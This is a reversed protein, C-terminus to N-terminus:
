DQGEFASLSGSGWSSVILICRCLLLQSAKRCLLLLMFSRSFSLLICLSEGFGFCQPLFVSFFCSYFLVFCSSFENENNNPLRQQNWDWPARAMHLSRARVCAKGKKGNEYILLELSYLSLFVFAGRSWRVSSSASGGHFLTHLEQELRRAFSVVQVRGNGQHWDLFFFFYLFCSYFFRSLRQRPQTAMITIHAHSSSALSVFLRFRYLGM